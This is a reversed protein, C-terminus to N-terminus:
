KIILKKVSINENESIKVLYTGANLNSVTINKGKKFSNIVVKKGTVDFIEVLANENALEIFVDGSSPNPYIKFAAVTEPQQGAMAPGRPHLTEGECLKEHWPQIQYAHYEQPADEYGHEAPSVDVNRTSPEADEPWVEFFVSNCNELYDTLKYRQLPATPNVLHQVSFVMLANLSSCHLSENTFDDDDSLKLQRVLNGGNDFQVVFPDTHDDYPNSPTNNFDVARIVLSVLWRYREDTYHEHNSVQLIHNDDNLYLAYLTHDWTLKKEWIMNHNSGVRGIILNLGNNINGAFYFNGYGDPEIDIISIEQNNVRQNKATTVMTSADTHITLSIRRGHYPCEGIAFYDHGSREFASLDTPVYTRRADESYYSLNYTHNDLVSGDALSVEMLQYLGDETIAGVMIDFDLSEVIKDCENRYFHEWNVTQDPNLSIISHIYEKPGEGETIDYRGLLIIRESVCNIDIPIFDEGSDLKFRMGFELTGDEAIKSIKYGDTVITFQENPLIFHHTRHTANHGLSADHYAFKDYTYSQAPSLKPSLAALTFVVAIQKLTKM